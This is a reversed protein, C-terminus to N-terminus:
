KKSIKIGYTKVGDTTFMSVNVKRINLTLLFIWHYKLIVTYVVTLPQSTTSESRLSSAKNCISKKTVLLKRSFLKKWRFNEELWFKDPSMWTLVCRRTSINYCALMNRTILSNNLVVIYCLILQFTSFSIFPFQSVIYLVESRMHFCDGSDLSHLSDTSKKLYYALHSCNFM